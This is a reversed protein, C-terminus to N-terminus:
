FLRCLRAMTNICGFAVALQGKERAEMELTSLQSLLEAIMQPREIEWDQRISERAMAVLRRTQRDGLGWHERSHQYCAATNGGTALIRELQQVRGETTANM